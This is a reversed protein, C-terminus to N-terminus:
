FNFQNGVVLGIRRAKVVHAAALRQHFFQFAAHLELRLRRQALDDLQRRSLFKRADAGSQTFNEAHLFESFIEAAVVAFGNVDAGHQAVHFGSRRGVAPIGFYEV